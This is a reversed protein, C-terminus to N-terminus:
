RRNGIRRDLEVFVAFRLKVRAAVNQDLPRRNQRHGAARDGLARDQDLVALDLRDPGAHCRGRPTFTM